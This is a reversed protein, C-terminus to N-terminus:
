PVASSMTVEPEVSHPAKVYAGPTFLVAKPPELASSAFVTETPVMVRMAM